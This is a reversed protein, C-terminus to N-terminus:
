NRNITHARVYHRADATILHEPTSTSGTRGNSRVLLLLVVVMVVIIGVLLMRKEQVTPPVGGRTSCRRRMDDRMRRRLVDYKKGFQRHYKELYRMFSDIEKMDKEGVPRYRENGMLGSWANKVMAQEINRIATMQDRMEKDQPREGSKFESISDDVGRVVGLNCEITQRWYNVNM